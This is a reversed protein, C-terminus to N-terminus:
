AREVILTQAILDLIEHRTAGDKERFIREPGRKDICLYGFDGEPGIEIEVEASPGRWEMQVGGYALPVIAFPIGAQGATRGISDVVEFLLGYATSISRRTPPDGGYSDWDAPLKALRSLRDLAPKLLSESKSLVDGALQRHSLLLAVALALIALTAQNESEQQASYRAAQDEHEVFSTDPFMAIAPTSTGRTGDDYLPLVPRPTITRDLVAGAARELM